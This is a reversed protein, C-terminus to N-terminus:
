AAARAEVDSARGSALRARWYRRMRGLLGVRRLFRKLTAIAWQLASLTLNIRIARVTPAFLFVDREQWSRSGFQRKYDAEGFGYDVAVERESILDEIVRLLLYTGVRYESYAPDFGPTGTYFVGNYLLGHWFAVPRGDIRLVYARFWGRELALATLERQAPTDAFAVGLGHQYTKSAIEVLDRFIVDLEGASRLVEVSMRDGFAKTLKKGYRRAYERTSKSRSAMFDDFSPPLELRWRTRTVGFRRQVHPLQGAVVSQLPSELPVAPITVVEADGARLERRLEGVLEGASDLSDAGAVGGHTVAIARLSPAYVKRYGVSAALSLTERRAVLLIPGDSGPMSLVHPGAGERGRLVALFYDPDPDAGEWEVARWEGDIAALEDVTCAVLVEDPAEPRASAAAGVSV